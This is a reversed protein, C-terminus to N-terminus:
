ASFIHEYHKGKRFFFPFVSCGLVGLVFCSFFLFCDAFCMFVFFIDEVAKSKFFYNVAPCCKVSFVTTLIIRSSFCPFPSIITCFFLKGTLKPGDQCGKIPPFPHKRIVFFHIKRHLCRQKQPPSINKHALDGKKPPCPM